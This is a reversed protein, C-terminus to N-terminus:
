TPLLGGVAVEVAGVELRHGLGVLEHEHRADGGRRGDARGVQDDAEVAALDVAEVDDGLLGLEDDVSPASMVLKLWSLNV